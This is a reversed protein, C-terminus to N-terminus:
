GSLCGHDVEFSMADLFVDNQEAYAPIQGIREAIPVQLFHHFLAADLDIMRVDVAPDLLKRREQLRGKPVALLAGHAATPPHVFGIDLDFTLPLVQIPSDVSLTLGNVEQEGRM